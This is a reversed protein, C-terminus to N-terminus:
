MSDISFKATNVEGSRFHRPCDFWYGFVNGDEIYLAQFLGFDWGENDYPFLLVYGPKLQNPDLQFLDDEDWITM